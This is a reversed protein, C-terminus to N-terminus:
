KIYGVELLSVAERNRKSKWLVKLSLCWKATERARGYPGEPLSVVERNRKSKWLVKSGEKNKLCKM